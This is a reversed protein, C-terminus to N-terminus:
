RSHGEFKFLLFVPPILEVEKNYAFHIVVKDDEKSIELDKATISEVGYQTVKYKEFSARIEPVSNGGNAAMKNVIDQVTRYENFVPVMKALLIAVSGAVVAWFLLGLLTVGQQAARTHHQHLRTM